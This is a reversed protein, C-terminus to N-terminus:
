VEGILARAKERAWRDAELIQQIETPRISMHADMTKRIMRHIERFGIRGELFAAVAVENAANLVAPMTGGTALGRHALGLAPYRRKEVPLFTLKEVQTLELPRWGAKLRYPFSLAYAIPIRMDPIGLQAIISGDQYRVMSHVISQPHIVVEVQDAMMDFLWRAEVVELGKNMMTASDVTIKPGMKWNPHRLAQRVTVRDLRKLSTRLFPGGSATLIIRDVDDRRNGQLCQFVASHESDVPLLRVGRKKAEQVFIEGAMVLVEKNALAVEKGARVAEFTPVLGAGGVIAALVVDVGSATAVATAGRDGWLIEIRRNGLLRRLLSVEGEERISVWDPSFERAQAALLKLNRGAVLGRVRFRDPFRRVLDLTSIGISGTSGLIAISKM